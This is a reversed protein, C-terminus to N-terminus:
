NTRQDFLCFVLCHLAFTISQLNYNLQKEELYLEGFLLTKYKKVPYKFNTMFKLLM